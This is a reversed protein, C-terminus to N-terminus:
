WVFPVLRFRTRRAYDTYGPLEARLTRDELATRVVLTLAVLAVPVYAWASGLVAAFGVQQVIIGAYMPHRVFRYPGTTIVTHGRDSQIRVTTELHRNAMASGAIPVDGIMFLAAGAWATWAALSSWGFRVDLGAVVPVAMLTATFIFGIVKDYTKTNERKKWREALLGPNKARILKLNVAIMLVFLGLAVWGRTWDWRGSSLFPSLAWLLSIMTAFARRAANHAAPPAASAKDTM